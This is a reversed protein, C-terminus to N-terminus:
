SINKLTGKPLANVISNKQIVIQVNDALSLIVYNDQIKTIKGLIGGATVVEDGASLATILNRQEKARKSQPRWIFFYMFVVFILTMVLLSGGGGGQPAADAAHANNVFFNLFTDIVQM